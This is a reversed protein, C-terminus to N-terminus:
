TTWVSIVAATVCGTNDTVPIPFTFSSSNIKDPPAFGYTLIDYDCFYRPISPVPIMAFSFSSSNFSHNESVNISSAFANRSPTDRNHWFPRIALFIRRTHMIDCFAPKHHKIPSKWLMQHRPPLKYRLYEMLVVYSRIKHVIHDSDMDTSKSNSRHQDCCIM